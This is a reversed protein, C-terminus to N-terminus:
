ATDHLQRVSFWCHLLVLPHDGDVAFCGGALPHGGCVPSVSHLIFTPFLTHKNDEAPHSGACHIETLTKCIM